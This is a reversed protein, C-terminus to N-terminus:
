KNMMKSQINTKIFVVIWNHIGVSVVFKQRLIKAPDVNKLALNSQFLMGTGTQTKLM